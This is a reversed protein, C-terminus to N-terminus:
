EVGRKELIRDAIAEPNQIAEELAADHLERKPLDRIDHDRLIQKVDLELDDLAESTEERPYIPTQKTEEYPFAPEDPDQEVNSERITVPDPITSSEAEADDADNGPDSGGEIEDGIGAFPSSSEGDSM